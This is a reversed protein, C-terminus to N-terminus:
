DSRKSAEIRFSGHQEMVDGDRTRFRVYDNGKDLIEVDRYPILRGDPGTPMWVTIMTNARQAQQQALQEHQCEKLVAMMIALGVASLMIPLIKKKPKLPPPTSDTIAANVPSAENIPHGGREKGSMALVRRFPRFLFRRPTFLVAFLIATLAGITVLGTAGSFIQKSRAYFRIWPGDRLGQSFDDTEDGAQRRTVMDQSFTRLDRPDGYTRSRDWRELAQEYTLPRRSQPQNGSDQAMADALCLIFTLLAFITTKM